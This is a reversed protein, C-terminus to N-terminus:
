FQYEIGGDPFRPMQDQQLIGCKSCRPRWQNSYFNTTGLANQLGAHWTITGLRLRRSNEIRFDLRSYASARLSNIKSLDYVDRNQALSLTLNDPAYPRGSAGSYRITLLTGRGMAWVAGFNAVVPLDFNGKRLVSDLGSYWSRAYTLTSTLRIKSSARAQLSFEVGRALGYGRSTMPFMLFAQGFTDAVNAMSLQPYNIAVPYEFYKKQYLELTAQVLRHNLVELGGTIQQARIPRLRQQNDFNLQYLAPPAQAYEAYGVHALRGHIPAAILVKPTWGTHGGLAWHAFRQGVVVKAQLPLLFTAQAYEATSTTAFRRNLSTKDMAAPSESYPNQLGIPQEIRYNMRDIANRIGGTLTFWPAAQMMGDYKLTTIGDSTKENYVPANAQLQDTQLTQQSQQSNALSVTGFSKSSFLHQWNIGTTNRWGRYNIDFPNTEFFDTASPRIKISDIGTLSLGWWNDKEGIRSGARVLENQYIPVGNMGIDDTLLHLVSHRASIFLSGDHRWPLTTSGGVGAIGFEARSHREVSGNPRTSIEVVSSLRQDFKSDYADTHLTMSRIAANDIMSVFGGTTDSLALQNISPIEINDVVFLNESPNGGRVLFDNRQDNDSIVGPLMQIFRSPDGFTGASTRIEDMTIRREFGENSDQPAGAAEVNVSSSIIGFGKKGVHATPFRDASATEGSSSSAKFLSFYVNNCALPVDCRDGKGSLPKSSNACARYGEDVSTTPALVQLARLSSGNLMLYLCVAITRVPTSHVIKGEVRSSM